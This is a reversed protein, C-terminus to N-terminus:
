LVLLVNFYQMMMIMKRIQIEKELKCENCFGCL